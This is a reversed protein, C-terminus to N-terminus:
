PYYTILGGDVWLHLQTNREWSMLPPPDPPDPPNPLDAPDARIENGRYIKGNHGRAVEVFCVLHWFFSVTTYQACFLLCFPFSLSLCVSLYVSLRVSMCVYHCVSLRVSPCVSLRFSPCVSLRVSPCVSLCVSLCVSMILFCTSEYIGLCVFHWAQVCHIYVIFYQITYLTYLICYVTYTYVLSPSTSRLKTHGPACAAKEPFRGAAERGLPGGGGWELGSLGAGVGLLGM